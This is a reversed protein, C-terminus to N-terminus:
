VRVTIGQGPTKSPFILQYVDGNYDPHVMSAPYSTTFEEIARTRVLATYSSPQYMFPISGPQPYNM